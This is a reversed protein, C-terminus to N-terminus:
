LSLVDGVSPFHLIIADILRALKEILLTPFSLHSYGNSNINVLVNFLWDTHM